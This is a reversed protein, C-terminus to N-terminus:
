PCSNPMHHEGNSEEANMNHWSHPLKEIFIQPSVWQNEKDEYNKEKMTLTCM